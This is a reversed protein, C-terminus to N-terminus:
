FFRANSQAFAALSIDKILIHTNPNVTINLDNGTQQTAGLLHSWDSFVSRSVELFDHQSGTATFGDIETSGFSGAFEFHDAGATAQLTSASAGASLHAGPVQLDIGVLSVTSAGGPNSAKVYIDHTGGGANPLSTGAKVRLEDGNVIEFLSDTLAAGNADVIQYSFTDTSNSDSAYLKGVLGGGPTGEDIALRDAPSLVSNVRVRQDNAAGGTNAGFGFSALSGGSLLKASVDFTQSDFAAGDISYSLTKTGAEWRILVNHWANNEINSLLKADGYVASGDSKIQFQSYDSNPDGPNPYTDFRIGFTNSGLVGYTVSSDSASMPAASLAFGIGDAGGDNGGFYMQTSWVVNQSLDVKGWAAGKLWNGNPTLQYETGGIASASGTLSLSLKPAPALASLGIPLTQIGINITRVVSAGSAGTAKVILSHGPGDASTVVAGSKVRLESGNAIEFLSDASVNGSADVVQYTFADDPNSDSGQLVGVLTQAGAGVSVSLQSAASTVSLIQVRQDNNAGGTSGGFGFKALTSGGLLNAAVDYRMTTFAGGDVSFGLAKATADWRLVVDHWANNEINPLLKFASAPANTGTALLQGYDSNPDGPNPYTDFRVGFTGTGLVGYNASLTTGSSLAFAIGDAGGDNAGFYMKTTWVISQSLDANGWVAGAQSSQAPTLQYTDGGMATVNGQMNSFASAAPAYVALQASRVTVGLSNLLSVGGPTTAKIFLDHTGGVNGSIAVGAKVHLEDGNIIEFLTDSTPNGSADVIQYTFSDGPNGDNADLAGVFTGATAGLDVGLHDTVTSVGLLRVRQDNAAGGTGAGLGFAAVSSGSLLNAAVDFTKSDFASGDISYSLAKAAADWRITVNHWAGDEINPLLKATGYSTTGNLNSVLQAFDSNPDGPNPYTDFRLGLSNNGLIGYSVSNDSAAVPAAALAFAIGDAGGDNNGFYMQTSWVVDKSLDATGWIAGKLSNANPTLQYENGGTLSAMGTASRVPMTLPAMGFVGTAGTANNAKIVLDSYSWSSGDAFLVREIHDAPTSLAHDLTVKDGQSGAFTLILDDSDDSKAVTVDAASIGSSLSLTDIGGSDLILDQGDGARFLYTDDGNGAALTDNGLGGMVTEAQASGSFNDNGGAMDFTAIGSLTPGSLTMTEDADSRQLTVNSFGGSSIMEVNQYSALRIVSDNATAVITDNGDGGDITDGGANHNGGYRIVDDGAGANISCASLSATVTDNGDGLAISQIGVLAVQGLDLEDANDTTQITVNQHGNATITEIGSVGKLGIVVDDSSARISDNGNGGDVSDVGGEDDSFLFADDGGAGLLTDNGAGGALTNAVDNGTLLDSGLGGTLGEFHSLTEFASQGIISARGTVLSISWSDLSFGFDAIDIGDGGDLMDSGQDGSITDNGIGGNLTDNGSGGFILDNGDSGSVSDDGGGARIVDDGAFGDITDAGATGLLYDNGATGPQAELISLLQDRKWVTGNSFHIEEIGQDGDGLQGSLIVSDTGNPLTIILDDLAQASVALHLQGPLVAPDLVLVNTAGDGGDIITDVGSGAAFVYTDAGAGGRLTDNGAGGNLTDAAAFGVISDNGTTAANTLAQQRLAALSLTSGDSFRIVQVGSLGGINRGRLTISGPHAAFSLVLAGDSARGLQVESSAIGAGLSLTNVVATDSGDPDDVIVDDGDGVNHVYTDGGGGGMLKDNGAGGSLTDAFITGIITDAGSTAQGSTVHAEIASRNWIVGDAFDIEDIGSSASQEQQDLYIINHDDIYLVVDSADTPSTMVKVETSNIGQLKLKDTSGADTPDYITDYDDGRAFNYTDSGAGGRLVDDGGMGQLTDAGNGGVLVDDGMTVPVSLTGVKSTGLLARITADTWVTGDAFKFTEIRMGGNSLDQYLYISDDSSNRFTLMVGTSGDAATVQNVIIDGPNIEPGFVLTDNSGFNDALTDHGDGINYQFTDDDTGGDLYDNGKGGVVLDNGWNGYIHDDGAGGLITDALQSGAISDSGPTMEHAFLRVRLDADSWVTGDAFKITEIRDGGNDLDSNLMIRDNTGAITLLVASTSGDLARVESVTISSASIGSGLVLTDNGGNDDSITDTADGLNFQYTDDDPGGHLVDNGTGGALTDSGWSGFLQDNGAGGFISEGLGSGTISDNGNSTESAFLLARLSADTWVTGDAFKFNEIRRGGNSLDQHLYISDNSNNRFTLMVGISGDSATVENLIIDGPNIGAGFVLTDNSGFNDALTDHGDGINYQFTDDDPGGDLADDGKGGVILDNGWDGYIQDDGDGGLITEGLQSGAILDSGSTTEHAFLRARLDADSWVTGDSFQITEIRRGGNTLDQYLYVGDHTGNVSLLVGISGDAAHFESVTVNAASIGAGFVLRDNWGDDSIVDFGDGVNVLYTDDGGGGQLYDDGAGGALTDNGGSGVLQDGASTGTLSAPTTAAQVLNLSGTGGHGNLTARDWITGDAFKVTDIGTNSNTYQGILLISGANNSFSIRLDNPSTPDRGFVLDAPNIGSGLVLTSIYGENGELIRDNGDGLNYIYTDAGDGGDLYDDGAGGELTDAGAWALLSDNGGAGAMSDADISGYVIDSDATQQATIMHATITNRDWTTGDSFQITDIGYQDNNYQNVLRLSGDHGAFQILLDYQLVPDRSFVLDSAGIGAGFKLTSIYGEYGEVVQDNGDGLNYIYTDAGDGGVLYDDGTGGILTDTGAWGMLTDDGNGGVLSDADVSGYVIDNVDSQQASVMHANIANRDWSSGDAFQITDIGYQDNNYQSVLKLSGDHGVFSILLDSQNISDRTLVLDAPNIGAGFKLTTIYGEYPDFIQDNGDGLNYIYTDAGDGGIMVDDGAGGTITDSGLGGSLWDNGNGGEITDNGLLGSVIDNLGSEGQSVIKAEITARNWVTGDAFQIQDMGSQNNSEQYQLVLSGPHNAFRIIVDNNSSPDAMVILEDPTIGAGLRLTSIYGEYGEVVQDDGDGAYYIFTDAGDGGIMTDPGTGGVITDSGANGYLSDATDYGILLDAGSTGTSTAGLKEIDRLTLSTGDQFRIEDISSAGDSLSQHALILKDGGTGVNIIIDEPAAQDHTVTINALSIGSGFVLVDLDAAAGHEDLRVIGEGLDFQYRDSGFGGSLTDSGGGGSLLDDYFTGALAESAATGTITSGATKAKVAKAGLEDRGWNTSAFDVSEIGENQTFAQGRLDIRESEAGGIILSLDVGSSSAVVTVDSPAIDAGFDLVDRDTAADGADQVRDVGDGSRYIFIDSGRGGDLTDAGEGGEIFDDGGRGRILDNGDNGALWDSGDERTATLSMDAGILRDDGEGGALVNGSGGGANLVDNGSGGILWDDLAGGVLLDDGAEGFLDDGSDSANIADDGNGGHFVNASYQSPPLGAADLLIGPLASLSDGGGTGSVIRKAGTDITDAMTRSGLVTSREVNGNKGIPSFNFQVDRADVAASSLLYSFGGDWDHVNRRLLGLDNAQSLAALWDATFFSDPEAQMLADIVASSGLYVRLRQAVALDGAMADLGLGVSTVQQTDPAGDFPSPNADATTSATYSALAAYFARKAYIDGGLFQMQQAATMVGYSVLDTYTDFKVRNASETGDKWYEFKEGRLGYSGAPVSAANVLDGGISALIGNMADAAVNAIGRAAGASGGDHKWTSTVGFTGTAADYGLIAGSVPKGTFLGGILGGILDGVFAAFVVAVPGAPAALAGALTGGIESGLQEGIEDWNAVENALTTGAFSAAFNTLNTVTLGHMLDAGHALNGAMVTLTHAAFSNAVEGGFGDIGIANILEATIFSSIAGIGANELNTLFETGIGDFAHVINSGTYKGSDFLAANLIDGLNTGITELAASAVVQTLPNNGGLYSGFISGLVDGAYAFDVGGPASPVVIRTIGSADRVIGVDGDSVISTGTPAHDGNAAFAWVESFPRGLQDTGLPISYFNQPARPDYDLAKITEGKLSLTGDAEIHATLFPGELNRYDAGTIGGVALLATSLDADLKAPDWLSEGGELSAIIDEFGDTNLDRILGDSGTFESSTIGGNGDTVIKLQSILSGDPNDQYWYTTDGDGLPSSVNVRTVSTSGSPGNTKFIQYKHQDSSDVITCRDGPKFFSSQNDRITDMFTFPHAPDSSSMGLQASNIVITSSSPSACLKALVMAGYSAMHNTPQPSELGILTAVGAQFNAPTQDIYGNTRSIAPWYDLTSPDFLYGGYGSKIIDSVQEHNLQTTGLNALLSNMSSYNASVEDSLYENVISQVQTTMDVPKGSGSRSQLYSLASNLKAILLAQHSTSSSDMAEYAHGIEHGAAFQVAIAPLEIAAASFNIIGNLPGNAYQSYNLPQLAYGGYYAMYGNTALSVGKLTGAAQAENFKASLSYDSNIADFFAQFHAQNTASNGVKALYLSKLGNFMEVTVSNLPM